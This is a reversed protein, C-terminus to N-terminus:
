PLLKMSSDEESRQKIRITWLDNAVLYSYFVDSGLYFSDHPELHKYVEPQQLQIMKRALLMGCAKGGIIGTGVMHNRVEFYDTPEFYRKVMERMKPDKTIM